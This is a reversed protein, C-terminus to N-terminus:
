GVGSGTQVDRDKAQPYQGRRVGLQRRERGWPLVWCHIFELVMGWKVGASIHGERSFRRLWWLLIDRRQAGHRWFM